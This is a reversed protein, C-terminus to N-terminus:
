QKTRDELSAETSTVIKVDKGQRLMTNLYVVTSDSPKLSRFNTYKAPFGKVKVTLYIVRGESKDTTVSYTPGVILDAGEKESFEFLAKAKLEEIGDMIVARARGAYAELQKTDKTDPAEPITITGQTKFINAAGQILSVDAVLPTVFMHPQTDMSTAEYKTVNVGTVTTQAGARTFGTLLLLAACLLTFLPQINRMIM